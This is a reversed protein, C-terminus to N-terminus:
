MLDYTGDRDTDFLTGWVESSYVFSAADFAEVQNGSADQISTGSYSFSVLEGADASADLTLILKNDDVSLGTV